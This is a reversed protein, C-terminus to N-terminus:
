TENFLHLWHDHIIARTISGLYKVKYNVVRNDLSDSQEHVSIIKFAKGHHSNRSYYVITGPKYKHLMPSNLGIMM